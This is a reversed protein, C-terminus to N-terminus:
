RASRNQNTAGTLLVQDLDAGRLNELKALQGQCLERLRMYLQLPCSQLKHQDIKALSLAVCNQPYFYTPLQLGLRRGDATGPLVEICPYQSRYTSTAYIVVVYHPDVYLLVAFHNGFLKISRWDGAKYPSM